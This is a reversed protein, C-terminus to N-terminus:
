KNTSAIPDIVVDRSDTVVEKNKTFFTKKELRSLTMIGLREYLGTNKLLFHVRM